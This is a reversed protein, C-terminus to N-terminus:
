TNVSVLDNSVFGHLGAFVAPEHITVINITEYQSSRVEGSFGKHALFRRLIGNPYM